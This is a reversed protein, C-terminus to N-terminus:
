VAEIYATNVWGVVTNYEVKAWGEICDIVKIPTGNPVKALSETGSKPEIRINLVSGKTKVRYQGPEVVLTNGEAFDVSHYVQGAKLEKGYAEYMESVSVIRFGKEVLGPILIECLDATFGYIDHM